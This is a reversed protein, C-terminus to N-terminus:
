TKELQDGPWGIDLDLLTVTIAERQIIKTYLEEFEGKNVLSDLNIDWIMWAAVLYRHFVLQKELKSLKNSNLITMVIDETLREIAVLSDKM